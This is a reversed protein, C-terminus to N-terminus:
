EKHQSSQKKDAGSEAPSTRSARSFNKSGKGHVVCAIVATHMTLQSLVPTKCARSAIPPPEAYDQMAVYKLCGATLVATVQVRENLCAFPRWEGLESAYAPPFGALSSCLDAIRACEAHRLSVISGSCGRKDQLGTGAESRLFGADRRARCACGWTACPGGQAPAGGAGARHRAGASVHAQRQGPRAGRLKPGGGHGSGGAQGCSGSRMCPHRNTAFQSHPLIRMYALRFSCVAIM